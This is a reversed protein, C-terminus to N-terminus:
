WAERARKRKLHEQAQRDPQLIAEAIADAQNKEM